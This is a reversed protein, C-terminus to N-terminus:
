SCPSCCTRAPPHSHHWRPAIRAPLRVLAASRETAERRRADAEDYERRLKAVQERLETEAVHFVQIPRWALPTLANEQACGSDDVRTVRARVQAQERLRVEVGKLAEEARGCHIKYANQAEALHARTVRVEERLRRDDALRASAPSVTASRMHVCRSAAEEAEEKERQHRAMEKHVGEVQARYERKMTEQERGLAAQLEATRARLQREAQAAVSACEAQARARVAAGEEEVLSVTRRLRDREQTLLM